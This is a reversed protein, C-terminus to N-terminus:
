VNTEGELKKLKDQMRAIDKKLKLKEKADKDQKSQEAKILKDQRKKYEEDTELTHYIIMQGVYGSPDNCYTMIKCNLFKSYREKLSDIHSNLYYEFDSFSLEEYHIDEVLDDFLGCYERKEVYIKEKSKSDTNLVKKDVCTTKVM